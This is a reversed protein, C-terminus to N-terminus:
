EYPTDCRTCKEPVFFYHPGMALCVPLGCRSCRINYLYHVVGAELAMLLVLVWWNKEYYAFTGLLFIIMALSFAMLMKGETSM